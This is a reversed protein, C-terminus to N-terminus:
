ERSQLNTRTLALSLLDRQYKLLEVRTRMAMSGIAAGGLLAVGWILLTVKWDGNFLSDTSKWVSLGMLALCLNIIKEPSGLWSIRGDEREVEADMWAKCLQICAIPEISIQDVFALDHAAVRLRREALRKYLGRFSILAAAADILMWASALLVSGGAAVLVLLRYGSDIRLPTWITAPIWLLLLCSFLASGIWRLKDTIATARAEVSSKVSDPALPMFSSIRDLLEITRKPIDDTTAM